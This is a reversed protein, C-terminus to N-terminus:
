EALADPGRLNRSARARRASSAFVMGLLVAAGLGYTVTTAPSAEIGYAGGSWTGAPMTVDVFRASTAGGSVVLGLVAALAFNWAIHFGTSAALSPADGDRTPFLYLAELVLAAIVTNAVSYASAGHNGAHALGFLVAPIAIAVERRFALALVGVLGARFAVEEFTAGLATSLLQVVFSSVLPWHARPALAIHFGGALAAVGLTAFIALVGLVGGAAFRKADRRELALGISEADIRAYRVIAGLLVVEIVFATATRALGAAAGHVFRSAVASGVIAATVALLGAVVVVVVRRRSVIEETM